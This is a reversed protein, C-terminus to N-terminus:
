FFSRYVNKNITFRGLKYILVFICIWYTHPSKHLLHMRQTFSIEKNSVSGEKKPTEYNNRFFSKSTIQLLFLFTALYIIAFVLFTKDLSIYDMLYVLLGGSFLTGLKFGGVQITNGLGLDEHNLINMALWDVCIDQTSSAMNLMFLIIAILYYFNMNIEPHQSSTAVVQDSFYFRVLGSTALSVLGLTLLTMLLWYKKTKYVDVLCSAVFFKLIWPILLLKFLGLSTISVGQQRMQLPLYRSQFGYPMAQVFYLLFLVICKLINM